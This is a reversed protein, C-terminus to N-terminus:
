FYINLIRRPIGCYIQGPIGWLIGGSFKRPIEGTFKEHLVNINKEFTRKLKCVTLVTATIGTISGIMPVCNEISIEDM